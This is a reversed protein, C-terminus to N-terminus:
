AVVQGGGEVVPEESMGGCWWGGHWRRRVWALFKSQRAPAGFDKRELDSSVAGLSLSSLSDCIM